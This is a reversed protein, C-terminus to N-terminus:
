LSTAALLSYLYGGLGFSNEILKRTRRRIAQKSYRGNSIRHVMLKVNETSYCKKIEVKEDIVFSKDVWAKMSM